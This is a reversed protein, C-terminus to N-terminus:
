PDTSRERGAVIHNDDSDVRLRLRDGQIQGSGGKDGDSKTGLPTESTGGFSESKGVRGETLRRAFIM